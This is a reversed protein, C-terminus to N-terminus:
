AVASDLEYAALHDEDYMTMLPEDSVAVIEAEPKFGNFSTALTRGYAGLQGIEIYDGEKIDEPLYFPGKMFDM